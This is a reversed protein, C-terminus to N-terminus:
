STLLSDYITRNLYMQKPTEVRKFRVELYCGHAKLLQVYVTQLQVEVVVYIFVLFATAISYLLETRRNSLRHSSLNKIVLQLELRNSFFMLVKAVLTELVHLFTFVLQVLGFQFVVMGTFLIGLLLVLDENILSKPLLYVIVFGFFWAFLSFLIRGKPIQKGEV